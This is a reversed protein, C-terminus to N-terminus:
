RVPGAAELNLEKQGRWVTVTVTGLAPTEQSLRQLAQLTATPKGALKLM